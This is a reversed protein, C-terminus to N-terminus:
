PVKLSMVTNVSAWWRDRDQALCFCDIGIEKIYCKINIRGDVGIHKLHAREKMNEGGFGQTCKEEGWTHWM